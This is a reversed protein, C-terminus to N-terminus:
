PRRRRRRRLRRQDGGVHDTSVDVKTIAEFAWIVWSVQLTFADIPPGAAVILV